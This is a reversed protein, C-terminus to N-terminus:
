DVYVLIEKGYHKDLIFGPSCSCFSCGALSDWKFKIKFKIGLHNLVEPLIHKIYDEYPRNTRNKINDEVTEGNHFIFVKTKSPNGNKTPLGERERIETIKFM